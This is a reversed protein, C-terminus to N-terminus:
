ECRVYLKDTTVINSMNGARDILHIDLTLSDLPNTSSPVCPPTSDSYLCCPPFLTLEMDILVGRKSVSEPVKPILVPQDYDEGTRSDTIFLNFVGDSSENGIDGDGDEIHLFLIFSDDTSVSQNITDKSLMQYELYPINSLEPGKTCSSFLGTLALICCIFVYRQAIM